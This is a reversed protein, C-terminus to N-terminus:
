SSPSIPSLTKPCPGLRRQNRKLSIPKRLARNRSVPPAFTRFQTTAENFRGHAQGQCPSCCTRWWITESPSDSLDEHALRAQHRSRKAPVGSTARGASRGRWGPKLSRPPARLRPGEGAPARGPRGGPPSRTCAGAATSAATSARSVPLSSTGRPEGTDLRCRKSVSPMIPSRILCGPAACRGPRRDVPRPDEVVPHAVGHQRRVRMGLDRRAPPPPRLAASACGPTERREALDHEGVQPRAPSFPPGSGTALSALGPWGAPAVM